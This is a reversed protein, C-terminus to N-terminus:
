EFVKKIIKKFITNKNKFFKGTLYESKNSSIKPEKWNGYQYTLYDDVPGPCNFKKGLFNIKHKERFFKDPININWRHYYRKFWNHRWALIEFITSNHDYEKFVDIKGDISSKVSHFITYKRKILESKILDFHKIFDKDFMGIEVDWDWKIFYNERRAGLVVGAQLFFFINNKELIDTIELFNRERSKLEDVTRFRIKPDQM